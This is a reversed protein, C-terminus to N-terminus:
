ADAGLVAAVTPGIRLEVAGHHRPLLAATVAVSSDALRRPAHWLVAGDATHIRLQAISALEAPVVAVVVTVGSGHPDALTILEPEGLHTAAECSKSALDGLCIFLHGSTSTNADLQFFGGHGDNGELLTVVQSAFRDPATTSTTTIATATHHLYLSNLVTTGDRLEVSREDGRLL